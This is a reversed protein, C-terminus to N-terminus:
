SAVTTTFPNVDSECFRYRCCSPPPPLGPFMKKKKFLLRAAVSDGRSHNGSKLHALSTLWKVTVLMTCPLTVLCHGSIVSKSSFPSGFCENQVLGPTRVCESRSCAWLFSCQNSRARTCVRKFLGLLVFVSTQVCGPPRASAQVCGPPRASAQVLGPSRASESSCAWSHSCVRKFLGLLAFVSAQVLGPPRASVQVHGPPRASM